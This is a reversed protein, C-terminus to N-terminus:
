ADATAGAAGGRPGKGHRGGPGREGREGPASNVRDTVRESLGAIRENAEDQTLDGAVVHEQIHATKSAVIADVVNAVPVGQDAAVDAISQGAERAAQLVDEGVGLADTLVAIREAKREARNAQREARNADRQEQTPAEQADAISPVAVAAGGLATLGVLGVAIAKKIRPTKMEPIWKGPVTAPTHTASIIMGTALLAKAVGEYSNHLSRRLISEAPKCGRTPTPSLSVWRMDVVYSMRGLHTVLWDITRRHM